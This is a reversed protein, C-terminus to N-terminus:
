ELQRIIVSFTVLYHLKKLAQLAAFVEGAIRFLIAHVLYCFDKKLQLDSKEKILLKYGRTSIEAYEKPVDKLDPLDIDLYLNAQDKFDFCVQTDKAWHLDSLVYALVNEM